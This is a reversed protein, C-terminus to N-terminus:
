QTRNGSLLTLLVGSNFTAKASKDIFIVPLEEALWDNRCEDEKMAHQIEDVHKLRMGILRANELKEPAVIMIKTEILVKTYESGHRAIDIRVQHRYNSESVTATLQPHIRAHFSQIVCCADLLLAIAFKEVVVQGPREVFHEPRVYSSMDSSDVIGIRFIRRAGNGQDTEHRCHQRRLLADTQFIWWVVGPVSELRIVHARFIQLSTM